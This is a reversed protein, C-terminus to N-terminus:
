DVSNMKSNPRDRIEQKQGFALIVPVRGDRRQKVIMEHRMKDGIRRLIVLRVTREHTHGKNAM